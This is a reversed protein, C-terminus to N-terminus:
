SADSDADPNVVRALYTTRPRTNLEALLSYNRPSQKLKGVQANADNLDGFTIAQTPCVAQCATVVEGDQIRRGLKEATIRGRTIRQICYTCKEMVGRERVTVEPNQLAKLPEVSQNSYQLFNFRRVKYPCNNSCFRTGVCRNYVQLNLGESDHVTAGVPCVEECPARECHMCPVPQFDVGNEDDRVYRDIRLWHMERGRMVQDKGVVPINNEAQCAITCANCGICANLDIVMGWKYGEYPYDPYLTHEPIREPPDQTTRILKRGEMRSHHQTSVLVRKRGTLAVQVSANWPADLTRLPYADFGVANGVDGARTRGYGLPLTVCEDAHGPLVWVGAHVKRGARRLEIEDGTSLQLRAATRPSLYAANDWVLKSMSRPLEQLWANNAFEGDRVSQDPVFSVTLADAPSQAPLDVQRPAASVAPAESGAIVGDRLATRWREDDAGSGFQARWHARVTDYATGSDRLLVNLIEHLSRGGYLPAITPQVISATGDFARVDSWQELEHALPVHWRCQVSTEDVYTALHISQPVRRLRAAFDLNAPADYVPNGGLILLLKVQGASMAAVLQQISEGHAVPEFAVPLTHEFTHGLGGLRHNLAHAAAHVEASMSPGPIVLAERGAATLDRVAARLLADGEAAAGTLVARALRAAFDAIAAPRLAVRRDARTGLLGPFSEVAYLRSSMGHEPDRLSALDRAYRVSMPGGCIVDADLTLLVRARDLRYRTDLVRGFALESGRLENDRHLPDYQHRQMRPYRLRLKELQGQLTPSTVTGTLVFLGEGKSEDFARLQQDMTLLFQPWTAVQKDHLLTQSRGPDWLQLVAAQAFVDTAGLSAPHLPNGEIKIPRGDNTEVLVGRGFGSLSLTTAYFLPVGPLAEEPARVFPVIEEDPPGSCAGSALATAAAMLKLVRRRQQSFADLEPSDDHAESM